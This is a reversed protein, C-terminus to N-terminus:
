WSIKSERALMEVTQTNLIRGKLVSGDMSSRCRITEGLYGEELAIVHITASGTSTVYIMELSEATRILPTKDGTRLCNSTQNAAVLKPPREPHSPDFRKSWGCPVPHGSFSNVISTSGYVDNSASVQGGAVLPIVTALVLFSGIEISSLRPCDGRRM